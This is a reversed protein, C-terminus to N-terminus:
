FYFEMSNRKRFFKKMEDERKERSIKNEKQIRKNEVDSAIIRKTENEVFKSNSYVAASWEFHHKQLDNRFEFRTGGYVRAYKNLHDKFSYVRPLDLQSRKKKNSFPGLYNAWFKPLEVEQKKGKPIIIIKATVNRIEIFNREDRLFYALGGSVKIEGFETEVEIEESIANLWVVGLIYRFKNESIKQIASSGSLTIRGGDLAVYKKHHFPTQIACPLSDMKVCNQPEDYIKSALPLSFIAEEKYEQAFVISFPIWAILIFLKM